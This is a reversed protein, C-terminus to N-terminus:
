FDALTYIKDMVNVHWFDLDIIQSPVVTSIIFWHALTRSSSAASIESVIQFVSKNGVLLVELTDLEMLSCLSPLASMLLVSKLQETEKQRDIM